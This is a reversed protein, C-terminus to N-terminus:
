PASEGQPTRGSRGVKVIPPPAVVVSHAPVDQLVVANAGIVTGEGIDVRGLVKAGAGLFCGRGVHPFGDDEAGSMKVGLTVGHFLVTGRGIRAHAGVALGMGHVITVGGEIECRYDIDISYLVHIVRTLVMSVVSLRRHWLRRGVRHVLLAHFGRHFLVTRLGGDNSRVDSRIEALLSM